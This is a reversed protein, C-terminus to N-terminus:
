KNQRESCFTTFTFLDNIKWWDQWCNTQLNGDYSTCAFSHRINKHLARTHQVTKKETPLSLHSAATCFISWIGYNFILLQYFKIILLFINMTFFTISYTCHLYPVWTLLIVRHSNHFWCFSVVSTVAPRHSKAHLWQRDTQRHNDTQMWVKELEM